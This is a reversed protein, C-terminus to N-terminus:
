RAPADHYTDFSISWTGDRDRRLGITFRGTAKGGDARDLQWTGAAFGAAGDSDFADLALVLGDSFRGRWQHAIAARGRIAAGAPPQFVGDETYIGALATADKARCAAEYRRLVGEVQARTAPPRRTTFFVLLELEETISHFHHPVGAAVFLVAGPTAAFERASAGDGAAFKADGRVVYYVEDEAHPQQGDRAGAALVYAGAYLGDTRLFELWPGGRAAQQQRLLDWQFSASDTREAAPRAPPPATPDLPGTRVTWGVSIAVIVSGGVHAWISSAM